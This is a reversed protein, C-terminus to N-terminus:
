EVDLGLGQFMFKAQEMNLARKSGGTIIQGFTSSIVKKGLDYIDNAINSIISRFLTGMASFKENLSDIGSEIGDFSLDNLSDQIGKLSKGDINELQKDLNQLTQLSTKVGSEFQKNDFEMEVIRRDTSSM